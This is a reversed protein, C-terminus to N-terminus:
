LACCSWTDQHEPSHNEKMWLVTRPRLFISSQYSSTCGKGRDLAGDLEEEFLSVTQFLCLEDCRPLSSM